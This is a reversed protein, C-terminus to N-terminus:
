GLEDILFGIILGGGAAAGAILFNRRARGKATLVDSEGDQRPVQEISM